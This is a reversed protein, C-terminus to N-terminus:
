GRNSSCGNRNCGFHTTLSGKGGRSSSGLLHSDQTSTTPNTLWQTQQQFQTRMDTFQATVINHAGRSDSGVQTVNGSRGFDRAIQWRGASPRGLAIGSKGFGQGSTINDDNRGTNGSFWSHCAVIEEIHTKESLDVVLSHLIHSKAVRTGKQLKLQSHFDRKSNSPFALVVM